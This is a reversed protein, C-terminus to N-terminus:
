VAHLVPKRSQEKIRLGRKTRNIQIIEFTKQLRKCAQELRTIKQGYRDSLPM